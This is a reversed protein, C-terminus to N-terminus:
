TMINIYREVPLCIAKEDVPKRIYWDWGVHDIVVLRGDDNKRFDSMALHDEWRITKSDIEGKNTDLITVRLGVYHGSTGGIVMQIKAVRGSDELATGSKSSKSTVRKPVRVYGISDIWEVELKTGSMIRQIFEAKTKAEEMDNHKSFHCIKRIKETRL